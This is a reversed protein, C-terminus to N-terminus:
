TGGEESVFGYVFDQCDEPDSCEKGDDQDACQYSWEVLRGDPLQSLHPSDRHALKICQCDEQNPTLTGNYPLLMLGCTEPERM